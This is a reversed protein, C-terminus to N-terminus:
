KEALSVNTQWDFLQKGIIIAHAIESNNSYVIIINYNSYLNINNNYYKLSIDKGKLIEIKM